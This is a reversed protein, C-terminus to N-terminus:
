NSERPVLKLWIGKEGKLQFPSNTFKLPIQTKECVKFRFNLLIYYFNTKLEMLAFRSALCNRPGIGFPLYTAPDIKKKNEDNFREPDFKEPHPFYNPDHHYGYYPIAFHIGKEFCIPQGHFNVTVEQVCKRNAIPLGPNIRLVESIFQDMYKMKQIHDYTLKEGELSKNLEDVENILRDQIDQNLTLYFAGMSMASTVASVFTM